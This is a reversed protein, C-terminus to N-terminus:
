RNKKRFEKVEAIMKSAIEEEEKTAERWKAIEFPSEDGCKSLDIKTVKM